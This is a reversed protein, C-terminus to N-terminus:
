WPEVKWKDIFRQRDEAAWKAATDSLGSDPGPKFGTYPVVGVSGIQRAQMELDDDSYWWRFQEDLRLGSEGALMWCAGPVRDYLTRKDAATYVQPYETHYNPGAMVLDNSRLYDRLHQVSGPNGVCDSSLALIEYREALTLARIYDIGANWWRSIRQGDDPLTLLDIAFEAIDGFRIPEPRTTVVVVRDRPHDLATVTARLMDLRERQCPILVWTNM